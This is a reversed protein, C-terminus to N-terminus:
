TVAVLRGWISRVVWAAGFGGLFGAIMGHWFGVRLGFYGGALWGAYMAVGMTLLLGVLDLAMNRIMKERTYEAQQYTQWHKQLSLVVATGIGVAIIAISILHLSFQKFIIIDILLTFLVVAFLFRTKNFLQIM